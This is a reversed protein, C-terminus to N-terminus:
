KWMSDYKASSGYRKSRRRIGQVIRFHPRLKMRIDLTAHIDLDDFPQFNHIGVIKSSNM